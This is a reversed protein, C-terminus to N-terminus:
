FFFSSYENYRPDPISDIAIGTRDFVLLSYGYRGEFPVFALDNEDLNNDELYNHRIDKFSKPPLRTKELSANFLEDIHDSAPELLFTLKYDPIGEIFEYSFVGAQEEETVAERAFFVPPKGASSIQQLDYPTKGQIELEEQLIPYITRTLQSFTLGIPRQSHVAYVGWTFASIQIMTIISLDFIIAKKSKTPNFLILTLCPGLVFDVFIMIRVGQWGGNVKFHPDPFWHFIIFYLIIIFALISITLHISTAKFRTLINKSLM